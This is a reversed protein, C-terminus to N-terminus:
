GFEAATQTRRTALTLACDIFAGSTIHAQAHHRTELFIVGFYIQLDGENHIIHTMIFCHDLTGCVKQLLWFHTLLSSNVGYKTYHMRNVPRFKNYFYTFMKKWMLGYMLLTCFKIENFEFNFDILYSKKERFAIFKFGGSFFEPLCAQESPNSEPAL